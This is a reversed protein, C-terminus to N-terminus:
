PTLKARRIVVIKEFRRWDSESCAIRHRGEDLQFNALYSGLWLRQMLTTARESTLITPAFGELYRLAENAKEANQVANLGADVAIERAIWCAGSFRGLKAESDAMTKAVNAKGAIAAFQVLRRGFYDRQVNDMDGIEAARDLADAMGDLADRVTSEYDRARDANKVKKLAFYLDRNTWFAVDIPNYDEQYSQSEQATIRAEQVLAFSNAGPIASQKLERHMMSGVTAALATLVSSLQHTRSRSPPRRRLIDRARELVTKSELLFRPQDDSGELRRALERLVIGETLMLTPLDVASRERIGALMRAIFRLDEIRDFELHYTGKPPSIRQIVRVLQVQEPIAIVDITDRWVINDAFEKIQRLREVSDVLVASTLIRVIGPNRAVLGLTEDRDIKAEVFFGSKEMVNILPRYYTLLEPFRRTLLDLSLAEDLSSWVLTSRPVERAIRAWGPTTPISSEVNDSVKPLSLKGSEVYAALQEALSSGRVPGSVTPKFTEIKRIFTDFENVLIQQM